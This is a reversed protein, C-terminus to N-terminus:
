RNGNRYRAQSHIGSKRRELKMRKKEEKFRNEREIIALDGEPTDIGAPVDSSSVPEQPKERQAPAGVLDALKTGPRIPIFPNNITRELIGSYDIEDEKETKEEPTASITNEVMIPHIKVQPPSFTM